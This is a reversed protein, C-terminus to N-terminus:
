DRSETFLGHKIRWQHINLLGLFLPFDARDKYEEVFYRGTPLLHIALRRRPRARLGKFYGREYASLQFGTSPHPDGGCKLDLIEEDTARDLRGQYCYGTHIVEAEIAKFRPRSVAVFSGWADVYPKLVPHLSDYDLGSGDGWGDLLSCARHVHRGRELAYEPTWQMNRVLALVDTVHPYNSTDAM